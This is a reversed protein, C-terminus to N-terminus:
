ADASVKCIKEVDVSRKSKRHIYIYGCLGYSSVRLKASSSTRLTLAATIRAGAFHTQISVDIGFMYVERAVIVALCLCTETRFIDNKCKIM